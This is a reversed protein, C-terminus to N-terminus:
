AFPSKVAQSTHALFLENAHFPDLLLWRTRTYTLNIIEAHSLNFVEQGKRSYRIGTASVHFTGWDVRRLIIYIIVVTVGMGFIVLAPIVTADEGGWILIAVFVVLGLIAFFLSFLLTLVKQAYKHRKIEM